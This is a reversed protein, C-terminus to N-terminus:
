TIGAEQNDPGVENAPDDLINGSVFFDQTGTGINERQPNLFQHRSTAPGAKYYNNVFNVKHAGGDTTRHDWNYVVNNRIDLQGKYEGSTDLGGALSWNRGACHALLNHHLSAIDGGVSAAYGHRSGSPYNKHGAENLAEALMSRQLTINGANRSSFAEDLSWSVTVHDYISHNSGQMGTGDSTENSLNGLRIRMFRVIVDEVGSIGFKNKRITIGKGTATQGAITLHDDDSQVTIDSELTILGGVDFVVIRPGTEDVIAARLSGPGSDNLNTVKVVRGHRGGVAFRGYGEAGPFALQRPRFSWVEGRARGSANEADVRWFYPNMSPFSGQISVSQGGTSAYYEPSDKEASAVAEPDLGIYIHHMDAAQGPRWALVVEGSDVNVHEDGDRPHPAVARTPVVTEGPNLDFIYVHSGTVEFLSAPSYMWTELSANWVFNEDVPYVWGLFGRGNVYGSAETELGRWGPDGEGAMPAGGNHLYVWGGGSGIASEEAYAWTGLAYSWIWPQYATQLWGLFRGTYVTEESEHRFGAWLYQLPTVSAHTRGVRLEDVLLEAHPRLVRGQGDLSANGAFPSVWSLSGVHVPAAGAEQDETVNELVIDASGDDPIGGLDPNLWLYVNDGFPDARHDVRVVVFDIADSFTNGSHLLPLGSGYLAWENENQNSFNGISLRESTDSWFRVSAGRPYLNSGWPYTGGYSPAGPDAVPGVRQGLYSIWTSTGAEGGISGAFGRGMELNGVEGSLRLHNGRTALNGFSLSGEEIIAGGEVVTGSGSFNQRWLWPTEWGTGGDLLDIRSGPEYSFEEYAILDPDSQAALHSGTCASATLLVFSALRQPEKLIM